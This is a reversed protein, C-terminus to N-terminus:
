FAGSLSFLNKQRQVELDICKGLLNKCSIEDFKGKFKEQKFNSKKLVSIDFEKGQLIQNKNPNQAQISNRQFFCRM